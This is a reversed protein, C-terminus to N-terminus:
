ESSGRRDVGFHLRAYRALERRVVEGCRGNRVGLDADLLSPGRGDVLVSVVIQVVDLRKGTAGKVVRHCADLTAVEEVWASCRVVEPAPEVGHFQVQVARGGDVRLRTFDVAQVSAATEFRLQVARQIERAARVEDQGVKRQRVMMALWESDIGEVVIGFGDGLGPPIEVAARGEVSAVKLAEILKAVSGGQAGGQIAARCVTEVVGWPVVKVAVGM